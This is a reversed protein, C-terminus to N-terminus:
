MFFVCLARASDKQFFLLLSFVTAAGNQNNRCGGHGGHKCSSSCAPWRYCRITCHCLIKILWNAAYLFTTRSKALTNALTRALENWCPKGVPLNDSSEAMLHRRFNQNKMCCMTLPPYDLEFVIPLSAQKALVYRSHPKVLSHTLLFHLPYTGALVTIRVAVENRNLLNMTRRNILTAHELLWPIPSHM